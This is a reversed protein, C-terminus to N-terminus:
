ADKSWLRAGTAKAAEEEQSPAVTKMVPAPPPRNGKFARAIDWLFGLWYAALLLSSGMDYAADVGPVPQIPIAVAAVGATAGLRWLLSTLVDKLPNSGPMRMIVVFLVMALAILGTVCLVLIGLFQFFHQFFSEM